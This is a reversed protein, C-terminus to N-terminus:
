VKNAIKVFKDILGVDKFDKERGSEMKWERLFHLSMINVKVGCIIVKSTRELAESFNYKLPMIDSSVEINSNSLKLGPGFRAEFEIFAPHEFCINYLNDSVMIDLDDTERLGYAAMVSGGFILWDNEPFGLLHFRKIGKVNKLKM